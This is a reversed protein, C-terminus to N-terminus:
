VGRGDPPQNREGQSAAGRRPESMAAASSPEEGFSDIVEELRAGRSGKVLVVDGARALRRLVRAAAANDAETFVAVAPRGAARAGAAVRGARSGVAVIADAGAAARGVEEHAAEAHDGLELMEGVVAIRRGRAPASLLVELAVRFSDPNANYHDEIFVIGARERVSLRGPLPRFTALGRAIEEPTLGLSLAAAAAAAANEANGAGAASLPIPPFGDLELVMRGLGSPRSSIIRVESDPDRGFTRVPLGEPRAALLPEGSPLVLVGGTMGEVIELKARAVEELSGLLGIHARGINTIISVDPRALRSLLAIEGRHNMGMEVVAAGYEGRLGLLTLPVGIHNNLNGPTRHVHYRASLAAAVMEKTTTKGSSGTVAVVPVQFRRRHARALCQLAGLPDEVVLAPTPAEHAGAWAAAVLAAAAGARGVDDLFDHGDHREGALAVFLDGPGVARSDISVGALAVDAASEPRISGGCAERAAGLTWGFASATM